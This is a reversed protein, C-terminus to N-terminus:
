FDSTADLRNAACALLHDARAAFTSMGTASAHDKLAAAWRKAEHPRSRAAISALSELVWAVPWHFSYGEGGTRRAHALAVVLRELAAADDGAAAEGLALARQALARQYSIGTVSALGDAETATHAARRLDGAHVQIEALMAM